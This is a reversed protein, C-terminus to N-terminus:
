PSIKFSFTEALKGQNNLQYIAGKENWYVSDVTMEKSNFMEQM